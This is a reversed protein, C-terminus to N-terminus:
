QKRRTVGRATMWAMSLCVRVAITIPADWNFGVTMGMCVDVLIVRSIVLVRQIRRGLGRDIAALMLTCIRREDPARFEHPSRWTKAAAVFGTRRPAPGRRPETGNKRSADNRFRKRGQGNLSRAVRRSSEDKPIEFDIRNGDLEM